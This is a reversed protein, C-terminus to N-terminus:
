ARDDARDGPPDPRPLRVASLGRVAQHVPEAARPVTAVFLLGVLVLGFFLVLSVSLADLYLARSTIATQTGPDLVKGLTPVATLLLFVGGEVLPLYLFFM